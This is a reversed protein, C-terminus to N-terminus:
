PQPEKTSRALLKLYRNAEDKTWFTALTHRFAPHESAVVLLRWRCYGHNPATNPVIAVEVNRPIDFPCAATYYPTPHFMIEYPGDRDALYHRLRRQYKEAVAASKEINAVTLPKVGLIGAAQKQTLHADERAVRFAEGTSLDIM